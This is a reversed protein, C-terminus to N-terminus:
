LSLEVGEGLYNIAGMFPPPPLPARSTVHAVNGSGARVAGQQHVRLDGSAQGGVGGPNEGKIRRKAWHCRRGAPLGLGRYKAEIYGAGPRSVMAPPIQQM